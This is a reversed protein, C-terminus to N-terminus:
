FKWVLSIKAKTPGLYNKTESEGIASNIEKVPDYEYQLLDYQMWGLGLAFEMNFHKGIPLMYNYTLGVSVFDGQKGIGDAKFKMDFQGTNAHIGIAHKNFTGPEFWYKLEGGTQWLYYSQHKEQMFWAWTYAGEVELSVRQGLYFELGFNPTATAWHLLNTRVGIIDKTRGRPAPDQKVQQSENITTAPLTEEAVPAVPPAIPAPTNDAIVGTNPQIAIVNDADDMEEVNTLNDLEIDENDAYIDVEEIMEGNMEDTMAIVTVEGEKHAQEGIALTPNEDALRMLYSTYPVSPKYSQMEKKILGLNDRKLTYYIATNNYGKIPRNICDVRVLNNVNQATDISFTIATHPIGYKLKFQARVVSAQISALNVAIPNNVDFTKIYAVVNIHNSGNQLNLKNSAVFTMINKLERSNNKYDILLVDNNPRFALMATDRRVANESLYQQALTQATAQYTNCIALIAIITTTLIIKINM